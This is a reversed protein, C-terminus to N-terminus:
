NLFTKEVAQLFISSAGQEIIFPESFNRKRALAAEELPLGTRTSVEAVSMDGFGLVKMRLQERLEAFKHRIRAYCLGPAIVSIDGQQAIGPTFSFYRAPVYIGGGNESVYPHVNNLRDVYTELEARTKSSCLVLPIKQRAILSLAPLAADFSYTDPRLLTGDLDTFIVVKM